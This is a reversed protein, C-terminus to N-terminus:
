GILRVLWLSISPFAVLYVVRIADAALYPMVGRFTESMPVDRAMGSIVYVNLGVPPAVLGIGVVTLV